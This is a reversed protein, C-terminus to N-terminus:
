SSIRNCRLPEVTNSLFALANRSWYFVITSQREHDFIREFNTTGLGLVGLPISNLLAKYLYITIYSLLTEALLTLFCFRPQNGVVEEWHLVQLVQRQM